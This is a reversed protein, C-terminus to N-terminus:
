EVISYEGTSSSVLVVEVSTGIQVNSEPINTWGELEDSYFYGKTHNEKVYKVRIAEGYEPYISQELYGKRTLAITKKSENIELIFFNFFEGIPLYYQLDGNEIFAINSIEKKPLFAQVKYDKEALEIHVSNDLYGIVQGRKPCSDDIITYWEEFQHRYQNKISFKVNNKESDFDIVVAKIKDGQKYINEFHGAAGWAIESWWIFGTNSNNIYKVAIGKEPVVYAIDIEVIKHYNNEFYELEPTKSLRKISINIRKRESDISIICVKITQDVKFQSTICEQHNWSIEQKVFSCEVGEQLECVVYFENIQKIAVNIVDGAQLKRIANEEWPDNLTDIKGVFNSSSPSYKEIIVNLTDGLIYKAELDLFRSYTLYPKPIYVWSKLEKNSVKLGIQLGQKDKQVREIICPYIRNDKIITEIYHKPDSETDQNSLIVHQRDSDLEKISLFIEDESHFIKRADKIEITSLQNNSVEFKLGFANVVIYEKQVNDIIAPINKGESYYKRLSEWALYAITAKNPRLSFCTVIYEKGDTTACKIKPNKNIQDFGKTDTLIKVVESAREYGSNGRGLVYVSNYNEAAYYDAWKIYASAGYKEWTEDKGVLIVGIKFNKSICKLNTKEDIERSALEKFWQLLGNAEINYESSPPLSDILEGYFYFEPLLINLFLGRDNTPVLAEFEQRTAEDFENFKKRFTTLVEKRNNRLIIHTTLLDIAESSSKALYDKAKAILAVQVFNLIANYFNLNHDKKNFSLCVIAENERLVSHVNKDDVWEIKCNPLIQNEFNKNYDQIISNVTGEYESKVSLKRVNKNTWGILRLIDGLMIKGKSWVEGLLYIWAFAILLPTVGYLLIQKILENM